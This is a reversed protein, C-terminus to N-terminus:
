PATGTRIKGTLALLDHVWPGRKLTVLEYDKLIESNWCVSFVKPGNYWIDLGFNGVAGPAMTQPTRLLIKLPAKCFVTVAGKVGDITEDEGLHELCKMSAAVVVPVLDLRSLASTDM